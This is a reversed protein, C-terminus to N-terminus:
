FVDKTYIIQEPIGNRVLVEALDYRREKYKLEFRIKHVYYPVRWGWAYFRIFEFAAMKICRKKYPTLARWGEGYYTSQRTKVETFVLTKDKVSIIDLEGHDTFCNQTIIRYGRRKLFEVVSDEGLQKVEEKSLWIENKAQVFTNDAM